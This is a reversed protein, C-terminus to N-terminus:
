WSDNLHWYLYLYLLGMVPGSPGLPNWSTLTGLNRSLPIPHHYTTLRVCRGGKGGPFVGPRGWHWLAILLIKHWHFIWQCWSLEFWRGESKYCLVKVVTCGRDGNLHWYNSKHVLLNIPLTAWDTYRSVVPQHDSISDRHPRSKGGTWVLGPAWGAELSIPVPDKGPTFHPWPM